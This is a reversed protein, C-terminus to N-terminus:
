DKYYPIMDEPIGATRQHADMATIADMEERTLSFDFIEANERIREKHVSKPIVSIGQQVAWRLGIQATTKQYKRGIELLLQSHLYAGRALPAYAQVAINNERCYSLLEPQNFLPHFEVQNVAPVVDSVKKLMELDHIHFNSVGISKVRGQTQLKELAKWTDTYCGPVPWHILYLDVYDLGLRELSRNFTDEVDGIRQATNWIKTTVFLEERPITLAKIGRGVGDENKYVSATDILRYGADAADAIAQEVENEGVAKYVGLGLLPMQRGDNLIIKENFSM